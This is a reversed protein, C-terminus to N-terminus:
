TKDDPKVVKLDVQTEALVNSYHAIAFNLEDLTIEKKDIKTKWEPYLAHAKRTIEFDVGLQHAVPTLKFVGDEISEDIFSKSLRQLMTLTVISKHDMDDAFVDSRHHPFVLKVVANPKCIRYMESFLHGLDKIHEPGHSLNIEDISNTEWPWPKYKHYLGIPISGKPSEQELDLVLDPNTAKDLDVNTYGVLKKYGCLLNLKM